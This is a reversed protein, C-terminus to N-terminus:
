RASWFRSRSRCRGCRTNWASRCRPRDRRRRSGSARRTGQDAGRNRRPPRRRVQPDRRRLARHGRHPAQVLPLFLGRLSDDPPQPLRRLEPRRAPALRLRELPAACGPRRQRPRLQRLLLRPDQPQGRAVEHDGADDDPPSLRADEPQALPEAPDVAHPPLRPVVRQHHAPRGDSAPGLRHLRRRARAGRGVRAEHLRSQPRPGQRERPPRRRRGTRVPCHPEPRRDGRQRRRQLEARDRDGHSRPPAPSRRRDSPADPGARSGQGRGRRRPHQGPPLRRAPGGAHRGAAGGGPELADRAADAPRRRDHRLDDDARAAVERRHSQPLDLPGRLPQNGRLQNAGATIQLPDTKDQAAMAVTMTTVTLLAAARIM